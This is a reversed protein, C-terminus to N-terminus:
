AGGPPLVRWVRANRLDTDELERSTPVAYRALPELGARPLYARGPDGLLVDVPKPVPPVGGALRGLWAEVEAAMPREYCVDGALVLDVGLDRRGVLNDTTTEVVVGNAAANLRVAAAAFPDTDAAVAERAGALMAAIAVLGSGAGFDLVRRAAVLDPNDLLYRALAQGGAWAFAWFPPPLGSADIETETMQWLAVVESALHLRLEPVLPPAQLATNAAVFAAHDTVAAASAEPALSM